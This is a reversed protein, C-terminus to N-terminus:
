DNGKDTLPEPEDDLYAIPKDEANRPISLFVEDDEDLGKAIVIMDNGKPGVNIEQRVTALGNKKFVYTLSDGQSHIAELPVLLVNEIYNTIIANSTTMAPRLTTDNENVEVTVEFVKADTNPRQEGINAMQTVKGSLQKEPFADLGIAVEQNLQIRSIDVENVYTRSVMTSLDPLTAVLPRWANIQSGKARKRGDYDRDYIVMGNEPAMINLEKLLNQLKTLDRQDDKLKAGAQAMESTSKERLLTYEQRAQELARKAKALELENQKITAPPEFQSQDVVLQNKEVDYQLNILKDRQERLTIATDIRTQQYTNLSEEVEMEEEGIKDMLESAGLKAVWEGKKVETGEAVIDDISIQYIRAQMLGMPGMIQVSNKAELEGTVTVDVQLDDRKVRTTIDVGEEASTENFFFFYGAVLLVIVALPIGIKKLM